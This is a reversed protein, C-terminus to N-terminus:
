AEISAGAMKKPVDGVCFAVFVIAGGAGRKDDFVFDNDAGGSTVVANPTEDGGKVGLGALLCPMEPGNGARALRAGLAPWAVKIKTAATGGPHRAGIIGFEVGNIPASAVRGGIKVTRRPGAVIEVGSANEREVGIGALHFPIKLERGM